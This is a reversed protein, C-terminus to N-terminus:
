SSAALVDVAPVTEDGFLKFYNQGETFLVEEVIAKRYTYASVAADDSDLATISVSYNGDLVPNGSDDLGDWDLKQLETYDTSLGTLTRVVTDTVPDRIEATVSATGEPVRYYSDVQGSDLTLQSSSVTVERGLLDSGGASLLSTIQAGIDELNANTQVAQEVQSLQALQSVFQTSDMPELPDQYQVQATLLTLFRNYDEGLQNLSNTSESGAAATATSIPALGM